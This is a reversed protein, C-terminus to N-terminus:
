GKATEKSWKFQYAPHDKSVHPEGPVHHLNERFCGGPVHYDQWMLGRKQLEPVLLEVVDEYSGPNSVDVCHNTQQKRSERSEFKCAINFGDIDCENFCEEFFDAVMEPTGTPKPTTGGFAALHGLYKPTWPVTSEESATKFGNIVGTIINDGPKGDFKFEEEYEYQGLDTGTYSSFKAMGGQISMAASARDYKAQAEEVTRGIIPMVAAFIKIKSPDRGAAIASERVSKTYAKLAGFTAYDTYIAEAHTGAFHIGSKSAGAQFIVPTRQPSPHTQFFGSMKHYKGDFEIRHIKQPNYAQEPEVSWEQVDDEWGKEWMRRYLTDTFVSTIVTRTKNAQM